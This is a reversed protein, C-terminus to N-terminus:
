RNVLWAAVEMDDSDLDIVTLTSSATNDDFVEGVYNAVVAYRGDPSIRVVHPAEGVDRVWDIEEGWAGLDLDFASLGNGRFHTVLLTSEDATVAMGAGGVSAATDAGQDQLLDPLPLFAVTTLNEVEKDADDSVRALDVVAVGDPNRMTLFLLDRSPVVKASTFGSFPWGSDVRLLAEVDMFNADDFTGTSDDRIDIVHVDNSLKSTVFLFGRDADLEIASMGIGRTGFEEVVQELEIVQDGAGGRTTRFTLTDNATPFRQAAYLQEPATTSGVARGIRATGDTGAYLLEIEDASQSLLVPSSVGSSAFSRTAGQMSSISLGTVAEIRREISLDDDDVTVHGLADTLGGFGVYYVHTVGDIVVPTPDFVDDDDFSGPTGTGIVFESDPGPTRTFTGLADAADAVGIRLRSGDDGTYWLRVGSATTQVAHPIRALTDFQTDGDALLDGGVPSFTLGDTSEARRIRIQGDGGLLGYFMVITGDSAEHVVASLATGGEDRVALQTEIEEPSVVQRWTNGIPELVAIRARGGSDTATAYLLQRGAITIASTPVLGGAALRNRIVDNSVEHGHTVSLAFPGFDFATGRGAPLLENRGGSDRGDLRWGGIRETFAGIRPPDDLTAVLSRGEFQIEPETWSRGDWSWSFAHSWAKGDHVATWLGYRGEMVLPVPAAVSHGDPLDLVIEPETWTLGDESQSLGISWVGTQLDRVSLWMRYTGARGDLAVYPDEYSLGEPPVLAGAPVEDYNLGDVTTAMGIFAPDGLEDRLHFYLARGNALPAASPSGVAFGNNNSYLPIADGFSWVGASLSAQGELIASDLNRVALVTPTTGSPLELFPDSLGSLGFEELSSRVPLDGTTTWREWERPGDETERREVFLRTTGDVFTLTWQDNTLQEPDSVALPTIEALSGSIDVDDFSADGAFSGPAVDITELPLPAADSPETTLATVSHDTLNGVYLRSRAEDVVVPFPDDQVELSGMLELGDGTTLGSTDIVWLDDEGSRVASGETLRGTVALLNADAIRGIQGLFPNSGQGDGDDDDFIPLSWARVDAMDLRPPTVSEEISTALAEWDLVVVGGTVFNRYPDANSVALYTGGDQEFFALDVPGALCTGLGIDGYTYVGDPVDACNGLDPGPTVTQCAIGVVLIPSLRM